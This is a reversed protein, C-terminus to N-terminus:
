AGGLFAPRRAPDWDGKVVIGGQGEAAIFLRVSSGFVALGRARPSRPGQNAADARSLIGDLRDLSGEWGYPAASSTRPSSSSLRILVETSNGLDRFEVTVLTEGANMMDSDSSWTYVLREPPQVERYTGFLHFAEGEPPQMALRYNGGVRLDVEAYPTSFGPPGWWRRLEEPDTWASFGSASRAFSREADVVRRPAAM